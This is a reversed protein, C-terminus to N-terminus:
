RWAARWWCISSSPWWCTSCDCMAPRARSPRTADSPADTKRFLAGRLPSRSSVTLRRGDVRVFVVMGGLWREPLRAFRPGPTQPRRGWSCLVPVLGARWPSSLEPPVCAERLVGECAFLLPSLGISAVIAAGSGQPSGLQLGAGALKLAVFAVLFGWGLLATPGARGRVHRVAAYVVAPVLLAYLVLLAIALSHDQSPNSSM